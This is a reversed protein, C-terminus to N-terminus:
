GNGVDHQTTDLIKGAYGRNMENPGTNWNRRTLRENAATHNQM